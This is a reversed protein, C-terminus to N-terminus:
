KSFVKPAGCEIEYFISSLTKFADDLNITKISKRVNAWDGHAFDNRIARCTELLTYIDNDLEFDFRNIEKLYRFSADVVSENEKLKIKFREGAPIEVGRSGESFSYALDKLSKELFMWIMVLFMSPAVFEYNEQWQPIAVIELGDLYLSSHFIDEEDKSIFKIKENGISFNNRTNNYEILKNKTFYLTEGCYEYLQALSEEIIVFNVLGTSSKFLIETSYQMTLGRKYLGKVLM